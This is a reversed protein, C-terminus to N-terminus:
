KVLHKVFQTGTWRFEAVNLKDGCDYEVDSIVKCKSLLAKESPRLSVTITTGQRPFEWHLSPAATTVRGTLRQYAAKAENQTVKLADPVRIFQDRGNVKWIQFNQDEAQYRNAVIYGTNKQKSDWVIFELFGEEGLQFNACGNTPDYQTGPFSFAPLRGKKQILDLFGKMGDDAKFQPLQTLPFHQWQSNLTSAAQGHCAVFFFSVLWKRM